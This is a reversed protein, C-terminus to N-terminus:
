SLDSNTGRYHFTESPSQRYFRQATPKADGTDIVHQALMTRGLDSKNAAFVEHNDHLLGQLQLVQDASLTDTGVNFNFQLDPTDEEQSKHDSHNAPDTDFQSPEEISM